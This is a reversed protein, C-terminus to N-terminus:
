IIQFTLPEISYKRITSNSFSIQSTIKDFFISFDSNDLIDLSLIYLEKEEPWIDLSIIIRKLVEYKEDRTELTIWSNQM